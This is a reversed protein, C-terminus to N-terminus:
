FTVYNSNILIYEKTDPKVWEADNEMDNMNNYTGITRESKMAQYKMVNNYRLKNIRGNIFVQMIELKARKYVGSSFVNRYMYGPVCLSKTSWPLYWFCLLQTVPIFIMLNVSLILKKWFPQVLKKDGDATYPLKQQEM